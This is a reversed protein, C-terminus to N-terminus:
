RNGRAFVAAGRIADLGDSNGLGIRHRFYGTDHKPVGYLGLDELNGILADIYPRGLGEAVGGNVATFRVEPNLTLQYLLVYALPRTVLELFEIAVPEARAVAAAFERIDSGAICEIPATAMSSAGPDALGPLSTLLSAM